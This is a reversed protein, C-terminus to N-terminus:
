ADNLLGQVDLRQELQIVQEFYAFMPNGETAFAALEKIQNIYFDVQEQEIKGSEIAKHLEVIVDAIRGAQKNLFPLVFNKCARDYDELTELQEPLDADDFNTM